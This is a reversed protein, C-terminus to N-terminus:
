APIRRGEYPRDPHNSVVTVLTIDMKSLLAAIEEVTQVQPLLTGRPKCAFRTQFLMTLEVLDLSDISLDYCLNASPSVEEIGVNLYEAIIQRIEQLVLSQM